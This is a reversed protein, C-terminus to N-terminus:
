VGMGRSRYKKHDDAGPRLPLPPIDRAVNLHGSTSSNCIRVPRMNSLDLPARKARLRAEYIAHREAILSPLITNGTTFAPGKAARKAREARREAMEAQTARPKRGPISPNLKETM